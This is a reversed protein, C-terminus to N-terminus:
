RARFVKRLIFAAALLVVVVVVVIPIIPLSASEEEATEVVPQEAAPEQVEPEASVATADYGIIYKSFHPTVFTVTGAAEDYSTECPTTAGAEDVYWVIVGEAKQGEQLTHPVTVKASGSQFDSILVDNSRLTLEVVPFDGAAAAQAANLQAADLQAVELVLTDGQTQEVIAKLATADFDVSAVSSKVTLTAGEEAILDKMATAPLSLEMAQATEEADVQIEVAPAAQRQQASEVAMKVVEQLKEESVAVSAKGDALETTVPLVVLVPEDSQQPASTPSSTATTTQPKKASVPATTAVPGTVVPQPVPTPAATPAPTATTAPTAAPTESNNSDSDDPTTEPTPAPTPNVTPEPTPTAISSVVYPGAGTVRFGEAVYASPDNAFSGGSIVLYQSAQPWEQAENQNWTYALVGFGTAAEFSGGSISMKPVGGPYNRNVISLAAGDPIFGDGTKGERQDTGTARVTGGAVSAVVGEGSCLQIGSDGTITPNGSISLVGNQPHYIAGGGEGVQTITGGTIRIVTDGCDQTATKTGNGSIAYAGNVSIVAGDNVNLEAGEGFLYVGGHLTAANVTVKCPVASNADRTATNNAYVAVACNLSTDQSELTGGNLVLSAATGTTRITADGVKVVRNPAVIKGGGVSDQITLASGQAIEVAYTEDGTYTITHGNLDLTVNVPRVEPSESTDKVQLPETLEIDQTLKITPPVSYGKAEDCAAQLSGVPRGNMEAVAPWGIPGQYPNDLAPNQRKPDAQADSLTRYYAFWWDVAPSTFAGYEYEVTSDPTLEFQAVVNNNGPTEDVFVGNWVTDLTLGQVMLSCNKAGLSMLLGTQFDTITCNYVKLTEDANQLGIAWNSNVDENRFSLNSVSVTSDELETGQFSVDLSGIITTQDQGAGVFHLPKLLTISGHKPNEASISPIEYTGAALQITDGAKAQKVAQLLEEVNSVSHTQAQKELGNQPQIDASQLLMPVAPMRTDQLATEPTQTEPGATEATAQAEQAAVTDVSTAVPEEAYAASPMMAAVMSISVLLSLWKQYM